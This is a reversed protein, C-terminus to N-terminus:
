MDSLCPLYLTVDRTSREEGRREVGSVVRQDWGGNWIPQLSFLEFRLNIEGKETGRWDKPSIRDGGVYQIYM